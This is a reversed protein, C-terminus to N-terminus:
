EICVQRGRGADKKKYLGAVVQSQVPVEIQMTLFLLRFRISRGKRNDEHCLFGTRIQLIIKRSDQFLVIGVELDDDDVFLRGIVIALIYQFDELLLIRVQVMAKDGVRGSVDAVLFQADGHADLCAMVLPQDEGFRITCRRAVLPEALHCPVKCRVGVDYQSIAVVFLGFTPEVPLNGEVREQVGHSVQTHGDASM